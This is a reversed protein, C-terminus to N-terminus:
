LCGIRAADIASAAGKLSYADVLPKGEAGTTEVSMANASRMAAIIARDMAANAAFLNAASGKLAFRRGGLTVSAEADPKRDRSLRVQFQGRIARGPWIGVAAFGTRTALPSDGVPAAIAHCRLMRIGAAPDRYAGWGQYIGLRDRALAPGAALVLAFAWFALMVAGRRRGRSPGSGHRGGTREGRNM